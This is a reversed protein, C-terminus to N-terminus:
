VEKGTILASLLGVSGGATTYTVQIWPASLQNLDLYANGASGGPSVTLNTGPTLQLPTWTGAQTNPNYNASVQVGITGIPNAGTWVLQIGINDEFQIYVPTGNFSAAMSQATILPDPYTPLVLKRM